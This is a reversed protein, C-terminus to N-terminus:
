PTATQERNLVVGIGAMMRATLPRCQICGRAGFDLREFMVVVACFRWCRLRLASFYTQEFCLSSMGAEECPYKLPPFVGARLEM